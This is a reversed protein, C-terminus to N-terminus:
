FLTTEFCVYMYQARCTDKIGQITHEKRRSQLGTLLTARFQKSLLASPLLEAARILPISPDPPDTNRTLVSDGLVSDGLVRDGVVRDGLVSDGLVSDGLVCDGLM